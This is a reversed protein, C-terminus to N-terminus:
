MYVVASQECESPPLVMHQWSHEIVGRQIGELQTTKHHLLLGYQGCPKTTFDLGSPETHQRAVQQQMKVAFANGAVYDNEKKWKTCFSEPFVETESLLRPHLQGYYIFFILSITYHGCVPTLSRIFPKRRVQTTGSLLSNFPNNNQKDHKTTVRIQYLSFIIWRSLKMDDDYKDNPM